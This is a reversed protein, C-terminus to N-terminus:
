IDSVHKCLAEVITYGENMSALMDHGLASSRMLTPGFVLAVNRFTMQGPSIQLLLSTVYCYHNNETAIGNSFYVGKKELLTTTECYSHCIVYSVKNQESHAAVKKLHKMLFKLTHYHATPLEFVLDKLM